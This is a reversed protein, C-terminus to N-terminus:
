RFFVSDDSHPGHRNTANYITFTLLSAVLLKLLHCADYQSKNTFTQQISKSTQCKRWVVSPVNHQCWNHPHVFDLIDLEWRQKRKAVRPKKRDPSLAKKSLRRGSANGNLIAPAGNYFGALSRRFLGKRRPVSLRHPQNSVIGQATTTLVLRWCWIHKTSNLAKGKLAWSASM